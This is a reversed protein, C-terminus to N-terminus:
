EWVKVGLRAEGPALRAASDVNMERGAISRGACRPRQQQKYVTASPTDAISARHHEGSPM